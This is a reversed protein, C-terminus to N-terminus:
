GSNDDYRGPLRYSLGSRHDENGVAVIVWSADIFSPILNTRSAELLVGLPALSVPNHDFRLTDAPVTEILGQANVRTAISARQFAIKTFTIPAPAAFPVGSAIHNTLEKSVPEAIHTPSLFYVQKPRFLSLFAGPFPVTYSAPTGQANESGFQFKYM